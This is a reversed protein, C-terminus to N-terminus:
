LGVNRRRIFLKSVGSLFVNTFTNSQLSVRFQDLFEKCLEENKLVEEKSTEDSLRVFSSEIETLWQMFEEM